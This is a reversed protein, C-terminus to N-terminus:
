REGARTFTAMGGFRNITLALFTWRWAVQDARRAKLEELWSVVVNLQNVEPANAVATNGVMLFRRGDEYTWASPSTRTYKHWTRSPRHELEEHNARLLSMLFIM